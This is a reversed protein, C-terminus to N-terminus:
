HLHGNTISLMGVNIPSSNVPNRISDLETNDRRIKEKLKTLESEKVDLDRLAQRIIYRYRNTFAKLRRNRSLILGAADFKNVVVEGGQRTLDTTDKVTYDSEFLENTSRNIAYNEAEETLTGTQIIALQDEVKQKRASITDCDHQLCKQQKELVYIRDKVVDSAERMSQVKLELEKSEKEEVKGDHRFKVVSNALNKGINETHLKLKKLEKIDPLLRFIYGIVYNRGEVKSFHESL